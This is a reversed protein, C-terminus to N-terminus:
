QRKRSPGKTTLTGNRTYAIENPSELSVSGIPYAYTYVDLIHKCMQNILFLNIIFFQSIYSHLCCTWFGCHPSAHQHRPLALTESRTWLTASPLVLLAQTFTFALPLRSSFERKSPSAPRKARKLGESTPRPLGVNHLAIQKFDSIYINIEDCFVGLHCM